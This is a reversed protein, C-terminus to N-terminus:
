KAKTPIDANNAKNVKHLILICFGSYDFESMDNARRDCHFIDGGPHGTQNAAEGSNKTNHGFKEIKFFTLEFSADVPVRVPLVGNCQM